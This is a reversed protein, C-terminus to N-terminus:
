LIVQTMENQQVYKRLDSLELKMFGGIKAVSPRHEWELCEGEADRNLCYPTTGGAPFSLIM